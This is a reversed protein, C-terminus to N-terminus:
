SETKDIPNGTFPDFHKWGVDTSDCDLCKLHDFIPGLVWEQNEWVAWADKGINSSGCVECYPEENM